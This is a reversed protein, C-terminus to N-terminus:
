RNDYWCSFGMQRLELYIANTQDGGTAQSHSLFFHTLAGAPLPVTGGKGSKPAQVLSPKPKESPLHPKMAQLQHVAAPAAAKSPVTVAEVSAPAAAKSPMTVAEVSAPAAAKSPMTVAEVSAPAAAKSPVTVAEVSSEARPNHQLLISELQQIRQQYLEHEQRLVPDAQQGTQQMQLERTKAPGMANRAPVLRPPLSPLAPIIATTGRLELERIQSQMKNREMESRLKELEANMALEKKDAAAKIERKDAEAQLKIERKDAEAQQKMERKDAEAQLKGMEARLAQERKDTEAAAKSERTHSEAQLKGMEARIAIGKMSARLKSIEREFRTFLAKKEIRRELQEIKDRLATVNAAL